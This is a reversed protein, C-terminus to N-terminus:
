TERAVHEVFRMALDYDEPSALTNVRAAFTGDEWTIEAGRTSGGPRHFHWVGDPWPGGAPHEEDPAPLVDPLGLGALVDAYDPRDPCRVSFTVSVPDRPNPTSPSVGVPRPRHANSTLTVEAGPRHRPRGEQQVHDCRPARGRQRRGGRVPH